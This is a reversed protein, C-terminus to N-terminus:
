PQRAAALKGAVAGASSPEIAAAMPQRVQSNDAAWAGLNAAAESRLCDECVNWTALDGRDNIQLEFAPRTDGCEECPRIDLARATIIIEQM